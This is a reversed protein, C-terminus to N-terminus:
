TFTTWVENLHFLRIISIIQFIVQLDSESSLLREEGCIKIKVMTLNGNHDVIVTIKLCFSLRLFGNFSIVENENPGNPLGSLFETVLEQNELSVNRVNSFAAQITEFTGNREM